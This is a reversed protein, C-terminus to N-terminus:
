RKTVTEDLNLVANAVVTWAALEPLDADGDVPGLPDTAMAVAEEPNARYHELESDFLSVLRELEAGEPPRVLVRRFLYTAKSDVSEGGQKASKRALAQAAEVYVPDNLTVLAQLPTNTRIRRSTCVERSPADFAVM